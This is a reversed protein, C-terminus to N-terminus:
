SADCTEQAFRADARASRYRCFLCQTAAPMVGNDARVGHVADRTPPTAAMDALAAWTNVTPAAGETIQVM